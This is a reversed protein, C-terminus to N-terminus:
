EPCGPACGRARREALLAPSEGLGSLLAPLLLLDALLCLIMLGGTMLGLHRILTFNSFALVAFGLTVALTTFVLPPFVMRYAATLSAPVDKGLVRHKYFSTVAHISDDVAIGFALSGILVTGADLPIKLFGMVGFGMIIPVVNPLLAIWALKLWRFIAFLIGSIAVLAFALGKLQGFAIADESRAFEFMIGTARATYGSVGNVDWWREAEGAVELLTGSRNDNVRLLLNAARWDPTILDRIFRKSELLVLYQSIMSDESPMPLEPDGIFGGHLQRLPDTIALTRGVDPRGELYASLRDIAAM